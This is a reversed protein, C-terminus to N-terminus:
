RGKAGHNNLTFRLKIVAIIADLYGKWAKKLWEGDFYRVGNDDIFSPPPLVGHEVRSLLQSEGVGLQKAVQTTTM